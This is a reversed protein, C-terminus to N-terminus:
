PSTRHWDHHCWRCQKAKPTRLIRTCQPCRSVVILNNEIIRDYVGELFRVHLESWETWCQRPFSDGTKELDKCRLALAEFAGELRQDDFRPFRGSGFFTSHYDRGRAGAEIGMLPDSFCWDCYVEDQTFLDHCNRRVYARLEQGDNYQGRRRLAKLWLWALGKRFRRLARMYRTNRESWYACV